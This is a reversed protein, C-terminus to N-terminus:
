KKQFFSMLSAQKTKGNANKSSATSKASPKEPSSKFKGNLTKSEVKPQRPEEKVKNKGDDEDESVM